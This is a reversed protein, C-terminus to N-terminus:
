HIKGKNHVDDERIIMSFKKWDLTDNFPLDYTLCSLQLFCVLQNSFWNSAPMFASDTCLLHCCIM